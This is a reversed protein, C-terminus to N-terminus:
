LQIVFESQSYQHDYMRGVNFSNVSSKGSQLRRRKFGECKVDEPPIAFGVCESGQSAPDRQRLLTLSPCSFCRCSDCSGCQM